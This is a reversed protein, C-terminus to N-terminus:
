AGPHMACLTCIADILRQSNLTVYKDMDPDPPLELLISEDTISSLWQALTGGSIISRINMDFAASFCDAMAGSGYVANIWGHIDAAYTPKIQLALDRLARAEATSFPASGTKNRIHYDFQWGIPFDRNIDLGAANCRGFGNHSTGNLLGDPNACPVVCLRFHKLEEPHAQFHDIVRLAIMRLVEGDHDFADEFGHVGFVLLLNHTADNQGLQICTLPRGSESYGYISEIRSADPIDEGVAASCSFFFLLLFSMFIRISNFARRSM